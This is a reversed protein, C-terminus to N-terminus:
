KKLKNWGKAVKKTKRTVALIMLILMLIIIVLFISNSERNSLNELLGFTATVKLSKENNSEDKEVITDEPDVRIIIKHEGEAIQYSFPILISEGVEIANVTQRRYEIGDIILSIVVDNALIEGNNRVEARVSILEGICYKNPAYIDGVIELDPYQIKLNMLVQNDSLDLEETRTRNDVSRCTVKFLWPNAPDLHVLEDVM